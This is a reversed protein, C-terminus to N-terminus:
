PTFEAGADPASAAPSPEAAPAPPASAPAPASPAPASSSPAAHGASPAAAPPASEPGPGFEAAAAADQGDASRDRRAASTRDAGSAPAATGARRQNPGPEAAQGPSAAPGAPAALGRAPGDPSRHAFASPASARRPAPATREAVVAGGGALAVASAAVAAAKGTAAAEVSTQVRAVTLVARDQLGAALAELSALPGPGRGGATTAAALAAVPIVAAVERPAERYARLTARCSSCRRLHPRAALVDAASAEGDAIRSLVGAWRACEAGAEIDALRDRLARRGEALCRNVKTYTWGTQRAIEGYSLGEARLALARVEAPKLRQLAEAAHALRDFREAQEDATPLRTDPAAALMTGDDPLERQRAARVALAERKVVTRLWGGTTAPDVRDAHRLYLELTRQYADHADDACMSHRRAVRLM